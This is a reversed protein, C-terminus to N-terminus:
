HPHAHSRNQLSTSAETRKAVNSDGVARGSFSSSETSPLWVAEDGRETTRELSCPGCIAFLQERRGCWLLPRQLEFEAEGIQLWQVEQGPVGGLAAAM